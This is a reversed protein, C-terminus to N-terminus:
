GLRSEVFEVIKAFSVLEEFDEPEADFGFEEAVSSILTVQGVSDWAAV